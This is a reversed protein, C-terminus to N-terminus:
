WRDKVAPRMRAKMGRLLREEDPQGGGSYVKNLQALMQERRQGQLFDCIARAFFRSRSLGLIRAAEDAERLLGDEISIATKM